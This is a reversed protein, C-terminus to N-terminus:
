LHQIATEIRAVLDHLEADQALPVGDALGAETQSCAAVLEQAQAVALAGRIRHLLSRVEGSNDRGIAANIAELDEQMTNMFVALLGEPM